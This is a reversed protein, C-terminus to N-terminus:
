KQVAGHPSTLVLYLASRVREIDNGTAAGTGAPLGNVAAVVRERAAAPMMGGTLLLNLRDVLQAPTRTLPYLPALNLGVTQQALDTTSRNTYIYNYYFNPQTLATTDNLIQYEPAYLGAEAIAGPLVFNPEFFNFVTDARLAAQGLSGEPNFIPFRGSNSDGGFARLLGTTM